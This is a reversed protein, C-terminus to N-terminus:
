AARKNINMVNWGFKGVATDILLRSVFIATFFSAVIGIALTVAFGRIPGSGYYMLILCTLITTINSDLIASLANGFGDKVAGAQSAGKGLEERIREFIIINADVAMGITLALGAVGPLTLTAGLSTLAAFVFILNLIIAISAVVGTFRYWAMIFLLIIVAGVMTGTRGKAISQAGLTPGVTREELQTLAAPLAGARLTTAIFKAEALTQQPDGSAGLRIRASDSDIKEDITPASKVVNDLVIAVQGGVNAGTLEAFLRRGEVNFRFNVQAKGYEDYGVFADELNDGSLNSDMKVLYPRRGAELTAASDLKEFVVQTSEPLDKELDQNLRKIYAAYALGNEQEKGLVYPGKTEAATILEQLKEGTVEYSIARFNLKATRNILDKARAADKIGPLQVLIRDTGQASISPEAVGFEDIRNRIVEIAQSVIQEKATIMYADYYQVAMKNSDSELIQLQTGYFDEIHKEVAAADSAAYTIEVESTEANKLTVSNFKIEERNFENQLNNIMRATKEKIVADVDVGLVLHLGGQIDLGLTMKKQSFWADEPDKVLNPQVWIIGLAATIIVVAWRMKLNQVM